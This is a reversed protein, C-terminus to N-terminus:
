IIRVIGRITYIESSHYFSSIILRLKGNNDSVTVTKDQTGPQEVYSGYINGYVRYSANEDNIHLNFLVNTTYEEFVINTDIYIDFTTGATKSHTCYPIHDSKSIGCNGYYLLPIIGDGYNKSKINVSGSSNDYIFKIYDLNIREAIDINSPLEPIENGWTEEKTVLQVSGTQLINSGNIIKGSLSYFTNNRGLNIQLYHNNTVIFDTCNNVWCNDISVYKATSADIDEFCKIVYEFYFNHFAASRLEGTLQVGTSCNEASVNLTYLDYVGNGFLFGIDRESCFVNQISVVNVFSVFVYAPESTSENDGYSYITDYKSYYCYKTYLVQRCNIAVVNKIISNYNFNQLEFGCYAGSLFVNEIVAGYVRHQGEPTGINSSLTGSNDYATQFLSIDSDSKILSYNFNLKVYSPILLSNNILYTARPVYIKYIESYYALDISDQIARTDDTIGDGKAGFWKVNVADRYVRKWCGTGTNSSNFWADQQATDSWDAPFPADPDIITGGNHNAKDENADWYFVGGGSDGISHYGKIFYCKDSNSSTDVDLLDSITDKAIFGIKLTSQATSANEDDLLTQMYSTVPIETPDAEIPSGDADFALFHNARKSKVPIELPVIEDSVPVQLVRTVKEDLQQTEMTLKDLADEITEAPFTDYNRYDTEQTLPVERVITITYGSAYTEVTTIKGGSSYDNGTVSVTYDTTETLTTENGNSDTLIVVLDSSQLIPFSFTFETTSGDCNYQVKNSSSSIM